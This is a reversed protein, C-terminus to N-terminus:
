NRRANLFDEFPDDDAKDAKKVRSRSSPTMGFEILMRAMQAAAKNAIALYPSQIPYNNPSTIVTGFRQLQERAENWDGWATCYLALAAKDITTMLGLDLLQKGMRFWERRAEGQLTPPCNPMKATPQPEDENVPRKGPNGRIKVLNTPTPPPGRRPPM